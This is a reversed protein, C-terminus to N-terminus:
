IKEEDGQKVLAAYKGDLAMLEDHSGQEAIAGNELYFIVDCNRITSLRHAIFLATRDRSISEISKQILAETGSDINATAEDLM